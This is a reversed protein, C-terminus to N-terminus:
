IFMAIGTQEVHISYLKGLEKIIGYGRDDINELRKSDVVSYKSPEDLYVICSYNKKETSARQTLYPRQYNNTKSSM